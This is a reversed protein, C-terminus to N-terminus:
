FTDLYCEAVSFFLRQSYHFFDKVCMDQDSEFQINENGSMVVEEMIISDNM